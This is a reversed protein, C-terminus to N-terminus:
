PGGALNQRQSEGPLTTGWMTARWRDYIRAWAPNRKLDLPALNTTVCTARKDAQRFETLGEFQAEPYDAGYAAGFDDILLLSVGRLRQVEAQSEEDRRFFLAFLDYAYVFRVSRFGVDWARQAILALISTKGTGPRGGILLGRGQAVHAPLSELYHGVMPRANAHVEDLRAEHYSRGFGIEDLWGVRDSRARMEERRALKCVDPAHRFPCAGPTQQGDIELVLMGDLVCGACDPRWNPNSSRKAELALTARRRRSIVGNAQAILNGVPGM